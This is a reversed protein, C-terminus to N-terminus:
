GKCYFDLLKPAWEPIAGVSYAELEIAKNSLPGKYMASDLQQEYTKAPDVQIGMPESNRNLGGARCSQAVHAAEHALAQALVATGMSVTSLKIRLEGRGPNWEGGAGPTLPDSIAINVGKSILNSAISRIVEEKSQSRPADPTRQAKDILLEIDAPTSIKWGNIEANEVPDRVPEIWTVIAKQNSIMYLCGGLLGIPFLWAFTSKGNRHTSKSAKGPSQLFGTKPSSYSSLAM